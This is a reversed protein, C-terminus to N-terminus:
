FVEPKKREKTWADLDILYKVLEELQSLRISNPGDCIAKEPENHVEMFVGAIGQAVASIALDAVFKREGGSSCETAGPQVFAGPKQVSHTADFIVPKGFSKMIGFGRYDVILDGYGFAYGRECLWVSENGTSQVKKLAGEMNQPALFQGKKIHIVKNTQGAAILLDTQRCLFAPIQIVSAFGVIKEIQAVEHVDTVIPVQFESKVRRLIESGKEIGLGRAGNLSTRNAKDFAAKFVLTFKLKEALNTLFEAMRMVHAESEIACPGMLFILPSQNGQLYHLAKERQDVLKM